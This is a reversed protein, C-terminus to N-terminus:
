NLDKQIVYVIGNYIVMLVEKLIRNFYIKISEAYVTQSKSEKLPHPLRRGRLAEEAM